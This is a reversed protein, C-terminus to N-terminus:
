ELNDQLMKFFDPFNKKLALPRGGRDTVCHVSKATCVLRGRCTMSYSIEFKAATLASVKTEIEIKDAFTTPSKLQCEFSVVPSIMGEAELKDYGFGQENLFAIRAEEMFKVYNSHHTVQMKDTEYYNVTRIFKM